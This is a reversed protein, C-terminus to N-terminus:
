AHRRRRLLGFGILALWVLSSAPAGGSACGCGGSAPPLEEDEDDILSDPDVLSILLEETVEFEGDSVTLEFAWDGRGPLDVSTALRNPSAIFPLVDGREDGTFTWTVELEDEPNPDYSASGDLYELWHTGLPIGEVVDASTMAVPAVNVIKVEVYDPTSRYQASEVRLEFRYTGRRDIRVELLAANPDALAVM